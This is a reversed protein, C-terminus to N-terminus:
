ISVSFVQQFFAGNFCFNCIRKVENHKRQKKKQISISSHKSPRHWSCEAQTFEGPDNLQEQLAPKEPLPVCHAPIDDMIIFFKAM